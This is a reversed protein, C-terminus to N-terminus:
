LEYINGKGCLTDIYEIKGSYKTWESMRFVIERNKDNPCKYIESNPLCHSFNPIIGGGEKGMKITAKAGFIKGCVPCRYNCQSFNFESIAKM